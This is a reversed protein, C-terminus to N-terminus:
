DFAKLFGRSRREKGELVRVLSTSRERTTGQIHSYAIRMATVQERRNANKGVWIYVTKATDILCAAESDLNNRSVEIENCKLFSNDDSILYMRTECSESANAPIYEDAQKITGKGGFVSWFNENDDQVDEEYRSKGYRSAVMNHAIEAAKSKEFPSCSDGFWTYVIDDTDLVFADGHNLSDLMIPVQYSRTIRKERRIHFLRSPLEIDGSNEKVGRFGSAVGGDLYKINKKMQTFCALFEDSEFGEVERHQVPADGLLDDLENAKYACVGYEDQSSESGIWFFIDYLLGGDEEDESTSLVIYSDGKHFDGYREEPWCEIGFAGEKNEVRWIQVGVSEGAGEWKFETEAAAKKADRDATSGIHALNSDKIPTDM